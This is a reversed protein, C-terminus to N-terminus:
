IMEGLLEVKETRFAKKKVKKAVIMLFICLGISIVSAMANECIEMLATESNLRFCEYTTQLAVYFLTFAIIRLLLAFVLKLSGFRVNPTRLWKINTNLQRLGIELIGIELIFVFIISALVISYEHFRATAFFDLIDWRWLNMLVIAFVLAALLLCVTAKIARCIKNNM